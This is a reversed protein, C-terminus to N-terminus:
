GTAYQEDADAGLPGDEPESTPQPDAEPYEAASDEGASADSELLSGYVRRPARM